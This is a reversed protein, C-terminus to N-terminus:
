ALMTCHFSVRFKLPPPGSNIKRCVKFPGGCSCTRMLLGSEFGALLSGGM